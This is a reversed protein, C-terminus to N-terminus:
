LLWQLLAQLERALQALLAARAFCCQAYFAVGIYVCRLCRVPQLGVLAAQQQVAVGVAWALM